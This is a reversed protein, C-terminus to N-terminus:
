STSRREHRHDETLQNRVETSSSPLINTAIQCARNENIRSAQQNISPSWQLLMFPSQAV